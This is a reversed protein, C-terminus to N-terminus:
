QLMFIKRCKKRWFILIGFIFISVISVVNSLLRIKTNGFRVLVTHKGPPVRYTIVGRYNMDQFQVETETKDVYVKWGPFYFTHDIMRLETQADLEYQRWSNHEQRAIIAGQGEIIAGKEKKVPYSQTPGTWITNMVQGYLNDESSYYLSNPVKQFNKGYLQPFRLVVIFFIVLLGLILQYKKHVTNLLIACIIPPIFQIGSLLRWQHQVNGLPKIINFIPTGIKTVFIIYLGLAVANVFLLTSVAKKKIYGYLLSSIGLILIFLEINGLHLYNGRRTVDTEFFYYWRPSIINSLGLYSNQLFVSSSLGYYLYKFEKLLPILYFSDIGLALAGGFVTFLITKIKNKKTWLSYLYYCSIIISFSIISIPHTLFLLSLSVIFLYYYSFKRDIIWKKIALLILPLFTNAMFEPAAGRIYVNIIRYPAFCFLIAGILASWKDVYERLFLYIAICSFYSSLVLILNYSLLVNNTIFMFIAGLYAVTQQSFLAMPMGYNAMAGLWRVPFDGDKLASYYQAINSMHILGDFSSPKGRTIFLDLCLLLSIIFLIFFIFSDERRRM